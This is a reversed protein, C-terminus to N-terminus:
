LFYIAMLVINFLFVCVSAYLLYMGRAIGGFNEEHVSQMDGIKADSIRPYLMSKLGNLLRSASIFLIFKGLVYLTLGITSIVLATKSANILTKSPEVNESLIKIAGLAVAGHAAFILNLGALGIKDTLDTVNEAYGNWWELRKERLASADSLKDSNKSHISKAEILDAEWAFSGDVGGAAIKKGRIDILDDILKLAGAVALGAEVRPEIERWHAEVVPVLRLEEPVPKEATDM